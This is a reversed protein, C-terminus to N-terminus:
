VLVAIWGVDFAATGVARATKLDFGAATVNAIEPPYGINVPDGKGGPVVVPAAAFPVPFTVATTLTVGVVHTGTTATGTQIGRVPLIDSAKIVQGATVPIAM